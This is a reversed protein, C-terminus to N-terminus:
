GPMARWKADKAFPSDSRLLVPMGAQAGKRERRIDIQTGLSWACEVCFKIRFGVGCRVAAGLGVCAFRPRTSARRLGMRKVKVDNFLFWSEVCGSKATNSKAGILLSEGLLTDITVQRKPRTASRQPLPAGSARWSKALTCASPTAPAHRRSGVSRPLSFLGGFPREGHWDGAHVCLL